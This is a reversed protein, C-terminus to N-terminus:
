HNVEKIEYGTQRICHQIENHNTAGETFGVEVTAKDINIAILQIGELKELANKLKNKEENNIIGLVSCHVREM